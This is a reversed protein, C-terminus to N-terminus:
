QLNTRLSAQGSATSESPFVPVLRGQVVVPDTGPVCGLVIARSTVWLATGTIRYQIVLQTGSSIQNESEFSFVDIYVHGRKLGDIVGASTQVKLFQEQSEPLRSRAPKM